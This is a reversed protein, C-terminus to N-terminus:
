GSCSRVTSGPSRVTSTCDFWTTSERLRAPPFLSVSSGFTGSTGESGPLPPVEQDFTLQANFVTVAQAPGQSGLVFLAAALLLNLM